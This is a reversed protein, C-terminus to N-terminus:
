SFIRKAENKSPKLNMAGATKTSLADVIDPNMGADKAQKPTLIADPKSIDCGMSKATTIAVSADVNWATSGRGPKLQWGPVIKGSRIAYSVQESYATQLFKLQEQAREIHGLIMGMQDIPIEETTTQAAVEYLSFGAERAVRCKGAKLLRCYRCHSGSRVTPDVGLAEVAASQLQKIHPQLDGVTTKWEDIPSGYTRPQVVRIVVRAQPTLGVMKDIVGSAYAIMQYNEYARVERFGYKFDWIYITNKAADYVYCDVTGFMTPHISPMALKKESHVNTHGSMALRASRVDDSFICAADVMEQTIVTGNKATLGVVAKPPTGALLMEVAEHAATGEAAPISPADPYGAQLTVSGPCGGPSGWM